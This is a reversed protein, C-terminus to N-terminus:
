QRAHPRSQRESRVRLFGCDCDRRSREAYLHLHRECESDPHRADAGHGVTVGYVNTDNAILGKGPDSVTFAPCPTAACPILSNYTDPRAVVANNAAAAASPLGAGNVSIYALMGADRSTANGSLSLERDFVPLATGVPPPCM